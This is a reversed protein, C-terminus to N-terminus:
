FTENVLDKEFALMGKYTPEYQSTDPLDLTTIRHWVQQVLQSFEALEEQTFSADLGIIEGSNTPEVFQLVGQEVTYNGFSRSNEVLLKYFMLQQRYRHLKIKEYETKGNWTSVAKGTKYDTVTMTQTSTDIDVLDLKGTLHAEGLMAQEGAFDVEPKQTPSFSAYAQELFARLAEGGKQQYLQFEDEPLHQDLLYGEFDQIIDEPARHKETAALHAHARQLASHIATGYAAQPSIARPFRLLHQLLFGNPGGNTVDLFACLHTASLKYRDLVPQLLEKKTGSSVMVIPQYWELLASTELTTMTHPLVTHQPVWIDSTLFSAPLLAKGSNDTLAHSITLYKKARTMAVFFLRLREDLSGGSPALPLNEPYGIMRGPSRVREGWTTDVAGTVYVHDFELGKSKHATMLNVAGDLREVNPRLSTITSGLQKHLTIFSLFESLRPQEDPHFERLKGRIARLADLYVLYEDPQEELRAPSFFYSFLPSSFAGSADPANENPIHPRPDLHSSPAGIIVDLMRELPLHMSAQATILLWHHLPAFVSHVAMAEMWTTRNHKASLSLKWIDIPDYQWAPHALVQPLLLNVEDHNQQQLTVIVRSILELHTIVDLDLVNDRREYNVSIEASALHPLLSVIESHKRALIAITEARVGRDILDKIEQAIWAKEDSVSDTSILRVNSNDVNSHPTLTKDLVPIRTELRDGGQTIVERSHRLIVETSRYNDTLTILRALPYVDRFGIINSIDAGQFSYIAQDDDGVVLINPVGENVPNDTLNHLIRMQAMNTDQFEDVMIFQHKEQLNFKLEPNQEIAQIVNLIMDDFDFLAATQMRDLYETYITSVARLKEQRSRSKFVFQGQDNKKMWTNRWATIPKTSNDTTASMVAFQLSDAIVQALSAIGPTPVSLATARITEIHPALQEATTKKIGLAFVNALASEAVDLVTDNAELIAVLENSTLGNRKLESITQLTERLYTYEGNMKSVLPNKYDLEDFIARIIEYTSLEDAPRFEAGRYFFERNHSIVESGFSHFTHIAVKYAEKGIISVLRERMAAAGSETFTLCLINEPLTDTRKLINAARMSLLETKGTGPGAVVMVPGEITDVAERQRTNLKQYRTNFDMTVITAWFRGLFSFRSDYTSLRLETM